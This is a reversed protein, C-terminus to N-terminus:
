CRAIITRSRSSFFAFSTLGFLEAIEPTWPEILFFPVLGVLAPLMWSSHRKLENGHRSVVM